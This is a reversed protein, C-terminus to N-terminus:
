QKGSNRSNKTNGLKRIECEASKLKYEGCDQQPSLATVSSFISCPRTLVASGNHSAFVGNNWNGIFVIVANAADEAGLRVLHAPM